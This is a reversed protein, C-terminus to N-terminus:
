KVVHKPHLIEIGDTDGNRILKLTTRFEGNTISDSIGMVLYVGSTHHLNGYDTVNIVRISELLEIEPDGIITMTAEYQNTTANKVYYYLKNNIQDQTEGAFTITPISQNTMMHSYIGTTATAVTQQTEENSYEEKTETDISSSKLGSSISLNSTGGFIRKVYFSMDIVPSDYGKQYIYTRSAAVEGYEKAELHPIPKEGGEEIRFLVIANSDPVKAEKVIVEQIYTIPNENDLTYPGYRHVDATAVFNEPRVEWGAAECIAMIARTPNYMNTVVNGEEDKTDESVSAAAINEYDVVELNKYAAESIANITLTTGTDMFDISYDQLMMKYVRSM